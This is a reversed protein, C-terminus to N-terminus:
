EFLYECFDPQYSQRYTHGQGHGRVYERERERTAGVSELVERLVTLARLDTISRQLITFLIDRNVSDFFKVVDSRWIYSKPYTKLLQQTREIAGLLGKNKRCSWVDRIFTKDYLPVLYEYLLRHVIRDRISAVAIRRKKNDTVYFVRYGGHRYSGDNLDAHLRFLNDELYYSFYELELSRKKGRRFKQWAYWINSLSLDISTVNGTMFLM